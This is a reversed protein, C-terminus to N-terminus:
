TGFRLFKLAHFDAVDGGTRQWTYFQVFPKSSYPDRLVRAGARNVVTYASQLDGFAIALSNAGIAPMDELTEVPYGFLSAPRGPAISQLLLYNNQTDKLKAVAAYTARSMYWAARPRYQPKLAAMLDILPESGNLSASITFNGSTGTNVHQFVGWARAADPTAATPYTMLGRPQIIGDGTLFASGEAIAFQEAIKAVLFGAVDINADDLLKQTIRPAAYVEQVPIRLTGIQPSTTEPRSSTEGVWNAGLSAARDQVEEYADSSITVNRALKRFPSIERQIQNIANSLESRVMYGGDPDAGISMAKLEIDDGTRAYKSLASKLQPSFDNSDDTQSIGSGTLSLRAQLKELSSFRRNMGTKFEEFAQGLEGIVKPLDAQESYSM